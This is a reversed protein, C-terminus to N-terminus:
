RSMMGIVFLAMGTGALILTFSAPVRQAWLVLGVGAVLGCFYLTAATFYM